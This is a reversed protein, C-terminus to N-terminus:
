SALGTLSNEVDVLEVANELLHLPQSLVAADVATSKYGEVTLDEHSEVEKVGPIASDLFRRREVNVFGVRQLTRTLSIEDYMWKHYHGFSGFWRRRVCIDRFFMEIWRSHDDTWDAPPRARCKDFEQLYNRWFRANDPVRVRVVGTPKLVRFCESLLHMGSERTFHELVEGLYICDISNDPWPFRKQLNAFRTASSFETPPWIRLWTLLRDAWAFRSAVWARLSGDVNEWAQPQIPGCGLNLKRM